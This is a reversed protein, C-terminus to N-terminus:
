TGRSSKAPYLRKKEGSYTAYNTEDRETDSYSDSLLIEGSETSVLKYRVTLSIRNEKSYEFYTTQKDHVSTEGETNKFVEREFGTMKEKKLNGKNKIYDDYEIILVAKIGNERRLTELSREDIEGNGNLLRSEMRSNIATLDFVKLFINNKNILNKVTANEFEIADATYNKVPESYIAVPYEACKLADDKLTKSNKYTGADALIREFDFYASRCKGNQMYTKAQRYVPENRAETYQTKVDRFTPNVNYVDGLARAADDFDENMLFVTGEKYRENLAQDMRDKVDKYNKTESYISEWKYWADMFRGEAFLQSGERYVPEYTAQNLYTRTDKYDPDIDFIENFVKKAEDFDQDNIFRLGANYRDDLYYDKADEFYRDMSPDTKLSLGTREVKNILDEAELYYYVTQKYDSRSFSNKVESSLEEYYLQATRRLDIKLDAKGPKKQLAQYYMDSAEKFMGAAEYQEAQKVMKKVACGSTLVLILTLSLLFAYTKNPM